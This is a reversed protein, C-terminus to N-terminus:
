SKKGFRDAAQIVARGYEKNRYEEEYNRWYLEEEQEEKERMFRIFENPDDLNGGYDLEPNQSGQTVVWRKEDKTLPPLLQLHTQKPKEM